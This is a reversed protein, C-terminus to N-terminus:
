DEPERVHIFVQDWKHHQGSPAPRNGPFTTDLVKFESIGDLDTLRWQPLPGQTTEGRLQYSLLRVRGNQIGYDHPEAIRDKGHYIFRVLHRKEIAMWISSHLAKSIGPPSNTKNVVHQSKNMTYLPDGRLHQRPM